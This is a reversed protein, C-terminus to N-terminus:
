TVHDHKVFKKLWVRTLMWKSHILHRVDLVLGKCGVARGSEGVVGVSGLGMM